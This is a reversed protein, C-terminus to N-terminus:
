IQTALLVIQDIPLALLFTNTGRVEVFLYKIASELSQQYM